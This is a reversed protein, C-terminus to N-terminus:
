TQWALAASTNVVCWPIDDHDFVQECDNAQGDYNALGILVVNLKYFQLIFVGVPMLAPFFHLYTTPDVYLLAALGNCSFDPFEHKGHNSSM